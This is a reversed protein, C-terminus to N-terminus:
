RFIKVTEIPLPPTWWEWVLILSGEEACSIWHFHHMVETWCSKIKIHAEINITQMKQCQTLGADALRVNGETAPHSKSHLDLLLTNAVSYLASCSQENFIRRCFLVNKPVKKQRCPQLYQSMGNDILRSIIKLIKTEKQCICQTFLCSFLNMSLLHM